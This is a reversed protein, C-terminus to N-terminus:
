EDFDGYEPTFYCNTYKTKHANDLFNNFITPYLPYKLDLTGFRKTKGIYLYKAANLLVPDNEPAPQNKIENKSERKWNQSTNKQLKSFLNFRSENPLMETLHGNSLIQKAFSNFDNVAIVSGTEDNFYIISVFIQKELCIKKFEKYYEVELCDGHIFIAQLSSDKLLDPLLEKIQM